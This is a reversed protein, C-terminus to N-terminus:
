AIVAPIGVSLVSVFDLAHRLKLQSRSIIWGLLAGIATVVLASVLAVLLTNRFGLWFTRSAFLERYANVSFDAATASTPLAYRFFRTWLLVAAPLIAALAIYLGVLLLAPIRWAGLRQRRQRYAKGTVTVFSDARKILRNYLLLLLVGLVLFPLSLA